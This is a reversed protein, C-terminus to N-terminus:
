KEDWWECGESVGQQRPIGLNGLFHRLQLRTPRGVGVKSPLHELYTMMGGLLSSKKATM